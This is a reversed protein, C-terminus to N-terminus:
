DIFSSRKGLISANIHFVLVRHITLVYKMDWTKIYGDDSGSLLFDEGEHKMVMLCNIKEAHGKWVSPTTDYPLKSVSISGDEAIWFNASHIQISQYSHM